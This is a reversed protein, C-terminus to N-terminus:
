RIMFGAGTNEYPGGSFSLTTRGSVTGRWLLHTQGDVQAAPALVEADSARLRFNVPHYASPALMFNVNRMEGIFRDFSGGTVVQVTIFDAGLNSDSVGLYWAEGGGIHQTLMIQGEIVVDTGFNASRTEFFEVDVYNEVIREIDTIRARQEDDMDGLLRFTAEFPVMVDEGEYASIIDDYTLDVRVEQAKCGILLLAVFFVGILQKM